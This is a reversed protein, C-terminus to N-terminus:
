PHSTNPLHCRKGRACPVAYNTEFVSDLADPFEEWLSKGILGAETKQM